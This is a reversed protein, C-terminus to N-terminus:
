YERRQTIATATVFLVASAALSLAMSTWPLSHTFLPSSPGMAQFINVAPPVSPLSLLWRLFVVGFMSAFGRWSEELTTSLLVGVFHIASGCTALTIWYLVLDSGRITARLPPFMIWAACPAIALVAGAEVLGMGARTAVLRLRSVPLSLTFYTSAYAGKSRPTPQATIGSGALLVPVMAYYTAFFGVAAEAAAVSGQPPNVARPNLVSLALPFLAYAIMFAVMFRTELWCKYWLV